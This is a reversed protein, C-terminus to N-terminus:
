GLFPQSTGTGTFSKLAGVIRAWTYNVKAYDLEPDDDPRGDHRFLVTAAGSTTGPLEWTVTTGVWYPFDGLCSWCVLRAPELADIRMRLDVPAGPFM